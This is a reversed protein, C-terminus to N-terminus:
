LFEAKVWWCDGPVRREERGEERETHTTTTNEREFNTKKFCKRM